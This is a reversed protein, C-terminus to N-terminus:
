LVESGDTVAAAARLSALYRVGRVMARMDPASLGDARAEDACDTCKHAGCAYCHLCGDCLLSTENIYGVLGCESDECIWSAPETPDNATHMLMRSSQYGLIKYEPVCPCLAAVFGCNRCGMEWSPHGKSWDHPEADEWWALREGRTSPPTYTYTATRRCHSTNSYWIDGQTASDHGDEKGLWFGLNQNFIYSQHSYRRDTTLIVVKSGTGLWSEFSKVVKEGHTPDDFGGWRSLFMGDALIRTDSRLDGKAPQCTLPLVGNHALVMNERRNVKFPHCNDVNVSGATAIRAHFLAADDPYQERTAIFDAMAKEDDMSHGTIIRNEEYVVVAWGFGDPNNVCGNRLHAPIPMAGPGYYMLICM